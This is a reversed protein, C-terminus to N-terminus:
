LYMYSYRVPYDSCNVEEETYNSVFECIFQEMCKNNTPDNICYHTSQNEKSVIYNSCNLGEKLPGSNCFFQEMCKNNYPDKICTHTSQHKKSVPYISCDVDITNNPVAECLIHEKCSNNAFDYICIHTNSKYM